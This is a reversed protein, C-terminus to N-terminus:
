CCEGTLALKRVLDQSEKVADDILSMAFGGGPAPVAAALKKRIAEIALKPNPGLPIGLSEAMDAVDVFEETFFPSPTASTMAAVFIQKVLEQSTDRMSTWTMTMRRKIGNIRCTPDIVYRQYSEVIQRLLEEATDYLVQLHVESTSRSGTTDDQMLARDPIGLSRLASCDLRARRNALTTGDKLDPLQQIDYEFHGGEDAPFKKSSLTMTGGSKISNLADEMAKMPNVAQGDQGVEGVPGAGRIPDDIPVEPARAITFGMAYRDYWVTEQKELLKRQQRVVWPAGRYRSCGYPEAMSGDITCIWCDDDDLEVVGGSKGVDVGAIEGTEKIIRVKSLEWPIPVLERIPNFPIGSREEYYYVKEFIQRGYSFSEFAQHIYRSWVNLLNDKVAETLPDDSDTDISVSANAVMARFTYTGLTFMEDKSMDDVIKGTDKPEPKITKALAIQAKPLSAKTAM